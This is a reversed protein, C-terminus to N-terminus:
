SMGTDSYFILLIASKNAVLYRNVAELVGEFYVLAATYEGRGAHDRASKLHTEISSVTAM